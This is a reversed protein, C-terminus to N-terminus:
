GFGFRKCDHSSVNAHSNGGREFHKRDRIQYAKDVPLRLAAAFQSQQQAALPISHV